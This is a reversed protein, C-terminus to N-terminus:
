RRRGTFALGVLGAGMLLLTGPEPVNISAFTTSGVISGGPGTVDGGATAIDIAITGAQVNNFTITGFSFTGADFTGSPLAYAWQETGTGTANAVVAGLAASGTTGTFLFGLGSATTATNGAHQVSLFFGALEGAAWTGTLDLSINDGVQVSGGPGSGGTVVFDFSVASATTASVFLIAAALMLTKFLRQM